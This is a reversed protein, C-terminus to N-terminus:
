KIKYVQLVEGHRLFLKGDFIYPHAWYPGSGKTFRFSSIVNFENDAPNVLGVNGNKEEFIYLLGDAYIISGKTNWSSEYLVKGSNWDMSVWKGKSNNEWNSGFLKDGTLILGGHHNDLVTDVFKVSMGNLEPNVKLMVAPHNYGKSIFIEDKKFTPSSAWILGPQDWKKMEFYNFSMAIDGTEPVLAMLHTATSALIFRKGNVTYIRPSVYSRQGGLSKSQWIREGTLKDFAVVATKKGGPSCIVKNDVILPSESVGWIHWEGEYDRDVNVSWITKGNAADLCSLEGTGSILYIRNDEITPTSRTDPFSQRWSTGYPVKWNIKGSYDVSWIWDLTDVMGTIYIANKTGVPSSYGKGLGEVELILQPGEAPWQKLLGSEPFIGDREPGRWQYIQPYIVGTIFILILIVIPRRM